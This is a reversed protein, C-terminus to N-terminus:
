RVRGELMEQQEEMRLKELVKAVLAPNPVKEFEFRPKEAATQIYVTGYNFMTGLIGGMKFSVDQIKDIAADSIEKYILSVFDVDVLREDTIIYVNFYWGLFQELIFAVTLLYWMLLAIFQFRAPLFEIIPFFRLVLPALCMLFAVFIWGLNTIPHRRLLLVIEEKEIQTEFAIDKPRAVFASAPASARKLIRYVERRIKVAEKQRKKGKKKSPKLSPNVFIDAM